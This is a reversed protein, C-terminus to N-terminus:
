GRPGSAALIAQVSALEDNNLARRNSATRRRPPMAVKLAPNSTCWDDDVARAWIARCCSIFGAKAGVGELSVARRKARQQVQRAAKEIDTKRVEDLQSSGWREVIERAYTSWGRQTSAAMSDMAIPVYDSVLM